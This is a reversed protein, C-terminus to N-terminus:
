LNILYLLKVQCQMGGSDYLRTKRAGFGELQTLLFLILQLGKCGNNM